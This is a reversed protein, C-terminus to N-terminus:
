KSLFRETFTEEALGSDLVITKTIMETSHGSKLDDMKVSHCVWYKGEKDIKDRTLVKVLKGQKDFHEMKCPYFNTKIVTVTIKSYDTVVGEKPTIDIIYNDADEKVFVPKWGDAYKKAEMDEYTFDTGAFKTNKVSASIRRTKKFAPLYLYMVDGPMSLFGIGKQDAPSLFKALRTDKGKQYMRMERVSEKGAKDKLVIQLMVDQDLSSGTADDMKNLIEDATPAACFVAGSVALVSALVFAVVKKYRKM